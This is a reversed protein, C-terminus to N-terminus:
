KSPKRYSDRYAREAADAAKTAKESAEVFAELEAYLMKHRVFLIAALGAKRLRESAELQAARAKLLADV